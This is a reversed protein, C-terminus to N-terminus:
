ELAFAQILGCVFYRMIESFEEFILVIRSGVYGSKCIIIGLNKKIRRMNEDLNSRLRTLIKVTLLNLGHGPIFAHINTQKM